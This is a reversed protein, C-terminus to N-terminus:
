LHWKPEILWIIFMLALAVYSIPMFLNPTDNKKLWREYMGLLLHGAMVALVIPILPNYSGDM